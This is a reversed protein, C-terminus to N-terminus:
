NAKSVGQNYLACGDTVAESGTQTWGFVTQGNGQCNTWHAKSAVYLTDQNHALFEPHDNKIKNFVTGNDLLYQGSNTGNEFTLTIAGGGVQIKRVKELSFLAQGQATQAVYTQKDAAQASTAVSLLIAAAVAFSKFFKSNM